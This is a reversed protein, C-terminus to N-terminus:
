DLRDLAECIWAAEARRFRDYVRRVDVLHVRDEFESADRLLIKSGRRVPFEVDDIDGYLHGYIVILSGTPNRPHDIYKRLSSYLASPKWAVSRRESYSVRYKFDIWRGDPLVFDPKVARRYGGQQSRFKQDSRGDPFLTSFGRKCLRDFQTTVSTSWPPIAYQAPLTDKWMGRHLWTDVSFDTM